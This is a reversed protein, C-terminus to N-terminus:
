YIPFLFRIINEGWFIAIISALSLYPGYPIIDTKYKIKMIIGVISGFVPAIFFAILANKWGLFSGVMAMLKVDGGGMSEKKFMLQGLVGIFYISGGGVLMGVISEKLSPGWNSVGHLGPFIMSFIIGVALGGLTIRDPIIQYKFDIFTAIIFGSVLVSYIFFEPHLGFRAFLALFMLASLLEVTFYVASIRAKCNRCKGILFIYSLLPINDYWAIPKKCAPCHSGPSIVSEDIPIRYICVNFFSGLCSGILFVFIKEIM